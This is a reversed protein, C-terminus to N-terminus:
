QRGQDKINSDAKRTILERVIHEKDYDIARNLVTGIGPAGCELNAKADLLCKVVDLNGDYVAFELPTEGVVTLKDVTIFPHQLLVEVIIKGRTVAYHLATRGKYDQANIQVDERSALLKVIDPQNALVALMLASKSTTKQLVNIDLNPQNILLTCVEENRNSIALHLATAGDKNCANLLAEANLLYKVIEIDGTEVAWMLPTSGFSDSIM